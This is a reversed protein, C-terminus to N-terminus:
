LKPIVADSYHQTTIISVVQLTVESIIIIKTISVVECTNREGLRFSIPVCFDGAINIYNIKSLFPVFYISM